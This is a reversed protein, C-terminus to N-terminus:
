IVHTFIPWLLTVFAVYFGKERTKSGIGGRFWMRLLVNIRGTPKACGVLTVILTANSSIMLRLLRYGTYEIRGLILKLLM